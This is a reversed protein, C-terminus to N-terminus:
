CVILFSPVRRYQIYGQIQRKVEFYNSIAFGEGTRRCAPLLFFPGGGRWIELEFRMDRFPTYDIHVILLPLLLLNSADGKRQRFIRVFLVSYMLVYMHSGLVLNEAQRGRRERM